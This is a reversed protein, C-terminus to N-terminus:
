PLWELGGYGGENSVCYNEPGDLAVIHVAEASLTVLWRGDPSWAASSDDDAFTTVRRLGSGDPRVVWVDWPIGHAAVARAGLAGGPRGVGLAIPIPVPITTPIPGDRLALRAAPDAAGQRGSRLDAADASGAADDAPRAAAVGPDMAATFAIWAGDPSFRPFALTVLQPQEVIVREEGGDVPRVVLREGGGSRVLALLSGDPSVGPWAAQQALVQGPEGPRAREIQVAEDTGSLIRREYVLSGDPLWAPAGLVEGPQSRALVQTPAGGDAPVLLIDQGGIRHDPPRWFRPVALLGGDASRAVGTAVGQAPPIALPRTERSPLSISVLGSGRPLLLRGAVGIAVDPTCTHAESPGAPLGLAGATLALAVLLVRLFRHRGAPRGAGRDRGRRAPLRLGFM